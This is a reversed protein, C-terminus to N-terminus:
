VTSGVMHVSVVPTRELSLSYHTARTCCGLHARVRVRKQRKREAKSLPKRDNDSGDALSGPNGDGTSGARPATQPASRQLTSPPPPLRDHLFAAGVHDAAADLHVHRLALQAPVVAWTLRHVAACSSNQVM